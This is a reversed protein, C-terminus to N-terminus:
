QSGRLSVPSVCQFTIKGNCHLHILAAAAGARLPRLLGEATCLSAVIFIADPSCFVCKPFALLSPPARCSAQPQRQPERHAWPGLSSDLTLRQEAQLSLM